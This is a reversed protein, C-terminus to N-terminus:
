NLGGASWKIANSVLTRYNANNYAGLGHGPQIYCVKSKGYQRTWCIGKDSSPADTTLLINNDPEVFCNRYIEDHITFGKMDKVIPHHKNEIIVPIDVDHKYASTKYSIGNEVVDSLFYRAGIIKRYEPWKQFAGMSHHLAVLGVGNNLLKVFNRQRKPSIKQTMNYLVIVDYPWNDIDEFIESGDKLAVHVYEIGEFSNFMELFLKQNFAHGSTIVAVKVASSQKYMNATEKTCSCLPLIAALIMILGFKKEVSM